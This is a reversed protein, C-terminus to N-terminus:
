RAAQYGSWATAITVIGLLVASITESWREFRRARSLRDPEADEAGGAQQKGTQRDPQDTM